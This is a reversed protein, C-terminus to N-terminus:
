GLVRGATAHLSRADEPPVELGGEPLKTPSLATLLGFFVSAVLHTGLVSPHSGDPQFLDRSPSESLSREWARGAPAVIAGAAAAVRAYEATLRAQMAAPTGGSWPKQYDADGARRAWTEYFIVKASAKNAEAALTAAASEFARPDFLPEESQGQLVVHTFGGGRIKEVAGTASLHAELRAGGRVVSDVVISALGSAAALAVLRGPLDNVYTYSNGIFLVRLAPEARGAAPSPSGQSGRRCAPLALSGIFGLFARRTTAM